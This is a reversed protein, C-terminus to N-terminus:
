QRQYRALLNYFDNNFRKEIFNDDDSPTVDNFRKHHKQYRNLLGYIDTFRKQRSAFVTTMSGILYLTILFISYWRM